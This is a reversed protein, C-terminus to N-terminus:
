FTPTGYRPIKRKAKIQHFCHAYIKDEDPDIVAFARHTPDALIFSENLAPRSAFIRGMHWYSLNDRFDGAVRSDNYRYEMYRPIYGFVQDNIAGDPQNYYIERNLIEQEGLHAFPPTFYQFKDCKSFHRPIGQQYAPKPM